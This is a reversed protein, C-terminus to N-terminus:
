LGENWSALRVGDEIYVYHVFPKFSSVESEVLYMRVTDKPQGVDVDSDDASDDALVTDTNATAVAGTSNWRVLDAHDTSSWRVLDAHCDEFEESSEKEDMVKEEEEKRESERM